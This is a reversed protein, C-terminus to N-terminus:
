LVLVVPDSKSLRLNDHNWGVILQGLIERDKIGDNTSDVLGSPTGTIQHRVVRQFLNVFLQVALCLISIPHLYRFM